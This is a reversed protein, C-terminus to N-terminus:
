AASSGDPTGRLWAEAQAPDRFPLVTVREELLIGIMRVLGYAVDSPVLIAIRIGGLRLGLEALLAVITRIEANTFDASAPRTDVLAPAPFWSQHEVSHVHDRIESLGVRGTVVTTVRWRTPDFSYAIPV